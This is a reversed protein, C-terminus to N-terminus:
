SSPATPPVSHLRRWRRRGRYIVDREFADPADTHLRWYHEAIDDPDFETGPAVPGAVTVTAVRLGGRRYTADLLQTLARVGPFTTQHIWIGVTGGTSTVRM